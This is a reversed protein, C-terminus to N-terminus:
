QAPRPAPRQAPLIRPSTAQPEQMGLAELLADLEPLLGSAQPQQAPAAPAVVPSDAPVTAPDQGTAPLAEPGAAAPAENDPVRVAELYEVVETRVRETRYEESQTQRAREQRDIPQQTTNQQVRPQEAPQVGPQTESQAAPQTPLGQQAQDEAPPVRVGPANVGEPLLQLDRGTLDPVALRTGLVQPQPAPIPGVAAGAPAALTIPLAVAAALVATRTLVKRM